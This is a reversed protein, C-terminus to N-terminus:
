GLLLYWTEGFVRACYSWSWFNDNGVGKEDQGQQTNTAGRDKPNLSSYGKSANTNASGFPDDVIIGGRNWDIDLVKVIHGSTTNSVGAMITKGQNLAPEWNQRVFDKFFQQNISPFGPFKKTGSSAAGLENALKSLNSWWYRANIGNTSPYKSPNSRLVSELYDEFQQNPNPNKIGLYTLCSALTTLNCMVDAIAGGNSANDRQNFYSVKYQLREYLAPRSSQPLQAILQRSTRIEDVTLRSKNLLQELQGPSVSNGGGNTPPLVPPRSPPYGNIYASPVWYDRGDAQYRFWLADPKGTWFDLVPEGYTWANFSLQTNSPAAIGTGWRDNLNPSKRYAVGYFPAGIPAVKGTFSESRIPYNFGSTPRERAVANEGGNWFQPTTPTVSTIQQPATVKALHVAAAINLLGAGTDIDWNPTKLDTATRKLIDIVQQYSLAPNAAWVLSAAGSVKAAAASSGAITGLGDGFTSLLPNSVTGAEAMIDLGTGYNSNSGRDFGNAPAVMPNINEASGVTIINGFQQSAQGLASIAGGDSGVAAVILVGSDHAYQLANWEELTFEFRTSTGDADYRTLDFSLNAIAHPQQSAKAADVFEILSKAWQDSGVARGLWLPADSNIGRVFNNDQNAGILGAVLSGHQDGQTSYLLPNADGDIWDYGLTAHSSGADLYPNTASFGTDIIGILPQVAGPFRFNGLTIEPLVSETSDLEVIPYDGPINIAGGSSDDIPQPADPTIYPKTYTILAQGIDTTRWDRHPDIVQDLHTAEGRAGRVQFVIDNYDRDSGTDVRLDEFAFTNGEGSVDVIQEMYFLQGPNLHSGAQTSAMSFLPRIAGEVSSHLVDEVRGNPVLMFGVRDGARMQVSKVGEYEGDNFDGEWALEDSFRGGEAADSIIIYGFESNSLARQATQQIFEGLSLNTGELGDLSFIALEGQYGGGDFLFDIAVEGSSGVTFVGSDFKPLTPPALRDTELPDIATAEPDFGYGDHSHTQWPDVSGDPLAVLTNVDTNSRLIAVDLISDGGDIGASPTLIPELLFTSANVATLHRPKKTKTLGRANIWSFVM